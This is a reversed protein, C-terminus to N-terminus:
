SFLLKISKKHLKNESILKFPNKIRLVIPKQRSCLYIYTIDGANLEHLAAIELWKDNEIEFVSGYSAKEATFVYRIIETENKIIYDCVSQNNKSVSVNQENEFENRLVDAVIKNSYASVGSVFGGVVLSQIGKLLLPNMASYVIPESTSTEDRFDNVEIDGNFEILDSNELSEIEEISLNNKEFFELIRKQKESIKPQNKSRFSLLGELKVVEYETLNFKRALKIIDTETPSNSNEGGLSIWKTKNLFDCVEMPIYDLPLYLLLKIFAKTKRLSPTSIINEFGEIFVSGREALFEPFQRAGSSLLFDDIVKEELSSKLLQKYIKESVYLVKESDGFYEILLKNRLFVSSSKEFSGNNTLLYPTENLLSLLESKQNVSSNLYVEMIKQIDRSYEAFGPLFGDKYKPLISNKVEAYVDAETLGLEKFFMCVVENKLLSRKVTNHIKSRSSPLYVLMLDNADFAPLLEKNENLILPKNRLSYYNFKHYEDWLKRHEHLFSYFLTFWKENKDNFLDPNVAIRFAFSEEDILKVDLKGVLYDSVVNNEVEKFRYELWESRNFLLELDKRNLLKSISEIKSFATESAFNHKNGLVPIIKKTKLVELTVDYFTKYIINEKGNQIYSVPDVLPLIKFFSSDFYGLEKVKLLVSKFFAGAEKLLKFNEPSNNLDFPVYERTPTTTFRAHLLFGLNTNHLTPFYVFANSGNCTVIQEKDDNRDLRFALQIESKKDKNCSFILYAEDNNECHNQYIIKKIFVDEKVVSVVSSIKQISGDDFIIEVNEIEKLFLLYNSNIQKLGSKVKQFIEKKSESKFPLVIRTGFDGIKVVAAAEELVEFDTIKYHYDRCHIRPEDTISYVSKFGIGFKGILNIENQKNKTTNAFTTVSMLDDEDFDKGNHFVEIRDKFLVFRITKNGISTEKRRYADETNQMIEEIFRNLDTYLGTLIEAHRNGKAKNAAVADKSRQIHEKLSLKM